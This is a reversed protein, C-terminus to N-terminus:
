KPNMFSVYRFGHVLEGLPETFRCGQTLYKREDRARVHTEDSEVLSTEGGREREGYRCNLVSRMLPYPLVTGGNM